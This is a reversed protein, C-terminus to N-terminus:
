EECHITHRASISVQKVKLCWGIPLKGAPQRAMEMLAGREMPMGSARPLFELQLDGTQPTM